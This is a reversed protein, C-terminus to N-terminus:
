NESALSRSSIRSPVGCCLRWTCTFHTLISL